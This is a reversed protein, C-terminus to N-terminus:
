ENFLVTASSYTFHFMEFQELFTNIRKESINFKVNDDKKKMNNKKNEYEKKEFKYKEIVSNFWNLSEFLKDIHYVKLLYCLGMIFGDDSFFAEEDNKNKKLM